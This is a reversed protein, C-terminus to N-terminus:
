HSPEYGSWKDLIGPYDSKGAAEQLVAVGFLLSSCCVSYVHLLAHGAWRMGLRQPQKTERAEAFAKVRPSMSRNTARQKHLPKFLSTRYSGAQCLSAQGRHVKWSVSPQLCVRSLLLQWLVEPKDHEAEDGEPVRELFM